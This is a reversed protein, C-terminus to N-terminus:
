KRKGLLRKAKLVRRVNGAALDGRLAGSLSDLARFLSARWGATGALRSVIARPVAVGRGGGVLVEPHGPAATTATATDPFPGDAGGPPGAAGTAYAAALPDGFFDMPLPMGGRQPAPAGPAKIKAVIADVAEGLLRASEAHVDAGFVRKVLEGAM